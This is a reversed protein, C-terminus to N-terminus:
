RARQHRAPEAGTAAPPDASARVPVHPNRPESRAGVPRSPTQGSIPHPAGPSEPSCKVMLGSATERRAASRLSGLCLSRLHQEHTIVPGLAVVVDLNLVLAPPPQGPRPQGLANGAQSPQVLQEGLVQAVVVDVRLGAEDRLAHQNADLGIAAGPHRRQGRGTVLHEREIRHLHGAVPFPVAGGPRLGVTSVRVHQGLDDTEIPGMVPRDGPVARLHLPQLQHSARMLREDPVAGAVELPQSGRQPLEKGRRQFCKGLQHGGFGQFQELPGRIRRAGGSQGPRLDGGGQGAGAAAVRLGLGLRDLGHQTGRRQALVRGDLGGVRDDHGARHPQDGLQVGLDALQLRHHGLTKAPVRVSVDHGALGPQSRDQAGPHQGLEAVVVGAVGVGLGPLVVGSGGRDGAGRAGAPDHQGAVGAVFVEGVGGM